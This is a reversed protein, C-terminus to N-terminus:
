YFPLCVELQIVEMIQGTGSLLVFEGEGLGLTGRGVLEVCKTGPLRSECLFMFPLFLLPKRRAAM